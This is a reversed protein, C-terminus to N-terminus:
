SEEWRYWSGTKQLAQLESFNHVVRTELVEHDQGCRVMRKPWEAPVNLQPSTPPPASEYYPESKAASRCYAAASRMTLTMDGRRDAKADLLAALAELAEEGTM